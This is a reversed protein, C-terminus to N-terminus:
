RATAAAARLMRAFRDAGEGANFRCLVEREGVVRVGEPVEDVATVTALPMRFAGEASLRLLDGEHLACAVSGDLAEAHYADPAEGATILGAAELPELFVPSTLGGYSLNMPSAAEGAFFITYTALSLGVVGVAFIGLLVFSYAAMGCGLMNQRHLALEHPTPTPLDPPESM